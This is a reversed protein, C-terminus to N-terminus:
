TVRCGFYINPRWRLVPKDAYTEYQHYYIDGSTKGM